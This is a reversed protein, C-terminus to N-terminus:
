LTDGPVILPRPHSDPLPNRVEGVQRDLEVLEGGRHSLDLDLRAGRDRDVVVFRSRDDFLSRGIDQGVTVFSRPGPGPSV